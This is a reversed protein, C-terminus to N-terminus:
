RRLRPHASIVGVLASITAGDDMEDISMIKLQTLEPWAAPDVFLFPLLQDCDTLEVLALSEVLCSHPLVSELHQLHGNHPSWVVLELLSDFANDSMESLMDSYVTLRTLHAANANILDRM